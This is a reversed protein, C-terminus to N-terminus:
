RGPTVSARPPRSRADADSWPRTALLVNQAHRARAAEAKPVEARGAGQPQPAAEASACPEEGRRPQAGGTSRRRRLRAIVRAAADLRSWMRAMNASRRIGPAS